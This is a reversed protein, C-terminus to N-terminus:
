RRAARRPESQRQAKRPAKVPHATDFAPRIAVPPTTTGDRRSALWKEVEAVSYVKMKQTLPTAPPFTPDIAALRHLTHWKIGLMEALDRLKRYEFPPKNVPALDKCALLV